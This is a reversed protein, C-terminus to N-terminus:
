LILNRKTPRIDDLQGNFYASGDTGIKLDNANSTNVATTGSGSTASGDVCLKVGGSNGSEPVSVALHHWAGNALSSGGTISVRWTLSLPVRDM